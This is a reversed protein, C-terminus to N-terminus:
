AASDCAGQCDSLAVSRRGASVMPPGAVPRGEWEPAANIRRWPGAELADRAADVLLKSLAGDREIRSMVAHAEAWALSTVFHFGTSRAHTTACDSHEDAFLASLVASTDWYIVRETAAEREEGGTPMSRADHLGSNSRYRCRCRIRQRRNSLVRMKWGAFGNKSRCRNVALRSSVPLRGAASPLPGNM